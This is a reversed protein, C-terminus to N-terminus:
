RSYYLSQSLTQTNQPLALIFEPLKVDPLITIVPEPTEAEVTLLNVRFEGSQIISLSPFSALVGYSPRYPKPFPLVPRAATQIVAYAGAAAKDRRDRQVQGM